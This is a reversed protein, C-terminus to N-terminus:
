PSTPSFPCPMVLVPMLWMTLPSASSQGIRRAKAGKVKGRPIGSTCPVSSAQLSPRFSIFLFAPLAPGRGNGLAVPMGRGMRPPGKAPPPTAVAPAASGAYWITARSGAPCPNTQCDSPLVKMTTSPVGSRSPRRGRRSAPRAPSSVPRAPRTRRPPPRCARRRRRTGRDCPPSRLPPGRGVDGRPEQGLAVGQGLGGANGRPVATIGVEQGLPEVARAHGQAALGGAVAAHEM